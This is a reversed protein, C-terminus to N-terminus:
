WVRTYGREDGRRALDVIHQLAQSSSTGDPVPALDLISLPLTM